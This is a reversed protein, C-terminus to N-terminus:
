EKPQIPQSPREARPANRAALQTRAQAWGSTASECSAAAQGLYDQPPVPAVTMGHERVAEQLAEYLPVQTATSTRVARYVVDHAVERGMMPALQIMYAEAMIAGNDIGLNDLARAPHMALDEVMRAAVALTSAAGLVAAPIASWEIQWEGAAREHGAELARTMPTVQAITSWALGIVAEADIPNAKQPMTSSAGRLHGTAERLEGVENRSLDIVEKALRSCVAAYTALTSVLRALGHRGVHWPVDGHSLGLAEAVHARVAVAHTGMAASTGGAGHMSLVSLRDIMQTWDSTLDTVQNLFVAFRAGMTTPVAQQAHTRAPAPWTASEQVRLSLADGLRVILEAQRDAAANLQLVLATDMVDQTTLGLHLYGRLDAPLQEDIQQILPLVPYGVIRTDRWLREVDIQVTALAGSLGRASDPPIVGLEGQAVAVAREMAIMARIYSQEDMARATADDGYLRTLLNMPEM